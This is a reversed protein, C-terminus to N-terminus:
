DFNGVGLRGVCECFFFRKSSGVRQCGIGIYWKLM